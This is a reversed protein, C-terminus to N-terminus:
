PAQLRKPHSFEFSRSQIMALLDHISPRDGWFTGRYAFRIIGDPDIIFVSPRNIYESHVAYAMPDIGYVAGVAGANDRLHPWWIKETYVQQFSKDAFWYEPDLEKGVMVRARYRDHTELTVPLIGASEFKDRLEILEDFEGHCVPCWDAFVWILIVWQDERLNNLDWPRDETDLLRFDPAPSGATPYGFTSPDLNLFATQFDRTVSMGKNIQDMSLEAQHRVDKAPDDAQVSKLVSLAQPSGIQGLAIVSQSRVLPSVDSSAAVLLGPLSAADGLIGLAAAALYRAQPDPHKLGLEVSPLNSQGIRVLDRLALVRVRWDEDRPNAIGPKDLHRDITFTGEANLPHFNHQDITEFVTEATMPSATSNDPFLSFPLLAFAALLLVSRIGKPALFLFRTMSFCIRCGTSINGLMNLLFRAALRDRCRSRSTRLCNEIQNANVFNTRRPGNTNPM